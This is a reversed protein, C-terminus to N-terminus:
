TSGITRTTGAITSGRSAVNGYNFVEEAAIVFFGEVKDFEAETDPSVAALIFSDLLHVVDKALFADTELECGKDSDFGAFDIFAIEVSHDAVGLKGMESMREEEVASKSTVGTGSKEPTQATKEESVPTPISATENQPTTHCAALFGAAAITTVLRVTKITRM